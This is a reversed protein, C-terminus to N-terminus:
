AVGQTGVVARAGSATGADTLWEKAPDSTIVMPCDGSDVAPDTVMGFM